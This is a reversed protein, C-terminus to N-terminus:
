DEEKLDAEIRLKAPIINEDKEFDLISAESFYARGLWGGVYSQAALWFELTCNLCVVSLVCVAGETELM